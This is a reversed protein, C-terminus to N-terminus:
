NRAQAGASSSGPAPAISKTLHRYDAHVASM